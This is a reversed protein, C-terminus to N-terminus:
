TGGVRGVQVVLQALQLNELQARVELRALAAGEPELNKVVREHLLAKRGDFQHAARQQMVVRRRQSGPGPVGCLSRTGAQRLPQKTTRAANPRAPSGPTATM